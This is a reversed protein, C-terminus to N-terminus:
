RVVVGKLIASRVEGSGTLVVFDADAGPQLIGKKPAHCVKAPNLTAARLSTQLDWRAFKMVNRVARDLTLASGALKGNSTCKGEKLEIELSGLQYRGDPMGTASIADTILVAKESGKMRLFMEVLVPNVHIGDAIIDASLESNTLVEGLIGPEHHNLPRMANFTHTAHRAGAKVGKRAAPIDADSHGISVCVGRRSAEAIVETACDLEPAITMMRIHGRAAQWFKEFAGVSAPILDEPPHVGRRPHSLFPGELHIGIPQARGIGDKGASDIANALRELAAQIMDIPATVTTPFYSTVGHRALFTAMERLERPNAHMVDHGVAGHIHVDVLGPAIVSDGFDTTDLNLAANLSKRSGVEVITGDEVLVAADEIKDLPTYLVSSTFLKM